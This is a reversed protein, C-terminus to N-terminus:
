GSATMNEEMQGHSYEKDTCIITKGNVVLADEMKGGTNALEKSKIKMGIAMTGPATKGFIYVTDMNKEKM